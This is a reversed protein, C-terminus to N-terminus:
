NKAYFIGWNNVYKEFRGDVRVRMASGTIESFPMLLWACAPKIYIALVDFENVYRRRKVGSTSVWYSGSQKCATMKIQVRTLNGKHDVIRDYGSDYIPRATMMGREIIHYDFLVEAAIGKSL